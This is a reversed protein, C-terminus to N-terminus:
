PSACSGGDFGDCFVVDAAAGPAAFVVFASGSLMGNPSANPAGILIDIAGDGNIDGARAVANGSSDGSAVGDFRLGNTGDLASLSLTAAFGAGSGFV